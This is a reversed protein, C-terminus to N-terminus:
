TISEADVYYKRITYMELRQISADVYYKIRTLM